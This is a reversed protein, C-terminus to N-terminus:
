RHVVLKIAVNGALGSVVPGAAPNVIPFAFGAGAKAASAKAYATGGAAQRGAPMAFNAGEDLFSDDALARGVEAGIAM